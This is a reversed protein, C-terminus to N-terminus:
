DVFRYKLLTWIAVLGDRWGVKKGEEGSRGKYQIPVEDIRYGRKALKATVEPCFEFRTAQLRLGKIVETRFVKYATAEDTIGAGYLANALFAFVRNGIWNAVRMGETRGLFRSGYVVESRGELIPALLAPYDQPDYELDADQILIIDGTALDIGKRLATGKGANSAFTYVTVGQGALGRLLDGTGDVSGDDIVIIEKEIPRDEETDDLRVAYVQRIVECITTRENYVPIVISLKV